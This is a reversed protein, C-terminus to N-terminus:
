GQSEEPPEPGEAAGHYTGWVEPWPLRLTVYLECVMLLSFPIKLFSFIPSLDQKKKYLKYLISTFQCQDISGHTM